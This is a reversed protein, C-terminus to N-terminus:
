KRVVDTIAIKLGKAGPVVPASQGTLDGDQPMAEGTKSVRVGVVVQAAGSLKAAPSMAMSDDLEFDFPLDKVQKRLVALPLRSGEAARAFVFVTDGPAAQAALASAMSVSGSISAGKAAVAPAAAAAANADNVAPVASPPMKGLQRAEAIGAQVQAHYDSGAPVAQLLKEWQAVAGAFDKNDFAATGALALAKPNVPDIQLARAVLQMPEGDLKRGNRVALVDAYDALLSADDGRLAVAKAYAPVADETRGLVAYARALMSWGQADDPTDKLRAALKEVMASIQAPGPTQAEGPAADASAPAAARPTGSILEPAGTWLYGACAVMVVLSSLGAVLARSPRPPAEGAAPVATAATAATAGATGATGAGAATVADVLKRELPARSEEYRAADLVGQEHLSKLQLLQQRLTALEDNM